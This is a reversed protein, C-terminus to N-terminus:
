GIDRRDHDVELFEIDILNPQPEFALPGRRLGDQRHAAADVAIGPALANRFVDALLGVRHALLDGAAPAGEGALDLIGLAIHLHGRALLHGLGFEVVPIPRDFAHLSDSGRSGASCWLRWIFAVGSVARRGGPVGGITSRLPMALYKGPTM